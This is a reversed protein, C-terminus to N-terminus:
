PYNEEQEPDLEPYTLYWIKKFQNPDLKNQLLLIAQTYQEVYACNGKRLSQWLHRYKNPLFHKFHPVLGFEGETEQIRKIAEQRAAFKYNREQGEFIKGIWFLFVATVLFSIILQDFLFSGLLTFSVLIIASVPITLVSVWIRNGKLQTTIKEINFDQVNVDQLRKIMEEPDPITAQNSASYNDFAQNDDM